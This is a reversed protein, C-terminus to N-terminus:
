ADPPALQSFPPLFPREFSLVRPSLLKSSEGTSFTTEDMSVGHVGVHCLWFSFVKGSISQCPAGGSSGRAFQPSFVVTQCTVGDVLDAHSPCAGNPYFQAPSSEFWRLRLALLNVTQETQGSRFRGTAAGFAKPTSIPERQARRLYNSRGTDM